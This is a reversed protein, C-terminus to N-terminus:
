ESTLRWIIALPTRGLRFAVESVGVGQELLHKMTEDDRTLWKKGHNPAAELDELDGECNFVHRAIGYVVDKVDANLKFAIESCSLGKEHALVLEGLDAGSWNRESIWTDLSKGDQRTTRTVIQASRWETVGDILDFSKSESRNKSPEGVVPHKSKSTSKKVKPAAKQPANVLSPIQAELDQTRADLRDVLSTLSVLQQRTHRIQSRLSLVLLLLGILISGSFLIINAPQDL